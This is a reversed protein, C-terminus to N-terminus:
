YLGRVLLNRGENGDKMTYLMSFNWVVVFMAYICPM